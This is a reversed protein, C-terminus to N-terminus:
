YHETYSVTTSATDSIVRHGKAALPGRIIIMERNYIIQAATSVDAPDPSVRVIEDGSGENSVVLMYRGRRPPISSASTGVSLQPM